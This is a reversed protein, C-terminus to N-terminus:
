IGVRQYFAAALDFFDFYHPQQLVHFDGVGATLAPFQLAPISPLPVSLVLFHFRALLLDTIVWSIVEAESTSVMLIEDFLLVSSLFYLILDVSGPHLFRPPSGQNWGLSYYIFWLLDRTPLLAFYINLTILLCIGTYKITLASYGHTAKSGCVVLLLWHFLFLRPILFLWCLILLFGWCLIKCYSQSSLLVLDEPRLWGGEWFLAGFHLKYLPHDLFRPFAMFSCYWWHHFSAAICTVPFGFGLQPWSKNVALSSFLWSICLWKCHSFLGTHIGQPM